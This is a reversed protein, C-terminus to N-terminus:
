QKVYKGYLIHAIWGLVIGGLGVLITVVTVGFSAYKLWFGLGVLLVVVVAWFIIKKTKTTM